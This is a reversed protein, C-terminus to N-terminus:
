NFLEAFSSKATYEDADSPAKVEYDGFAYTDTTVTAIKMEGIFPMNVNLTLSYTQSKIKGSEEMVISGTIARDEYKVTGIEEFSKILEHIVSDNEKDLGTCTFIIDKNEAEEFTVKKYAMLTTNTFDLGLLEKIEADSIFSCKNKTVKGSAETKVYLVGDVFIIETKVGDENTSTMWNGKDMTITSSSSESTEGGYSYTTTKTRKSTLKLSSENITDIIKKNYDLLVSDFAGGGLIEEDTISIATPTSTEGAPIIEQEVLIVQCISCKRGDKLGPKTPTAPYGQVVNVTHQKPEIIEAETLIENCKKCRVSSTIGYNRCLAIESETYELTDEPHKCNTVRVKGCENCSADSEDSFTHELKPLTVQRIVEHGCVTCIKGASLGKESCTPPTEPVDVVTHARKPIVIQEQIVNHCFVCEIFDSLGEKSCTAPTGETILPVHGKAENIVAGCVTCVQPASCTPEDGPTHPLAPITAKNTYGCNTCEFHENYGESACSTAKAEVKVNNHGTAPVTTSDVLIGCDKCHQQMVGAAVCTAQITTEWPGGIHDTMPIEVETIVGCECVAEKLGTRTCSPEKIVTFEGFRHTHSCSSLLTLSATIALLAFLLVALKFRTKKM